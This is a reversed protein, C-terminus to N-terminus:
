SEYADVKPLAFAVLFFLVDGGINVVRTVLIAMLLNAEAVYQNLLYLLVIERVGIGAPAGPTLLGILWGIVFAAGIELAKLHWIGGIDEMLNLIIVFAAASIIMNILYSCLAYFVPTGFRVQLIVMALFVVICFSVIGLIQPINPYLVPILLFVFLSGGAIFFVIEWFTSKALSWGPVGADMGISQRGAFHFINGPVYKALQSVGYAKYAWLLKTRSKLSILLNWWAVPLFSNAVLCLVTVGAVISCGAVGLDVFHIQAWDEKFRFAVFIIGIFAFTSGCVEIIKKSFRKIEDNEFIKKVFTREKLTDIYFM